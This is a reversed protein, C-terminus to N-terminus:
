TFSRPWPAQEDDLSLHTEPEHDTHTAAEFQRHLAPASASGPILQHPIGEM